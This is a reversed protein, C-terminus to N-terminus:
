PSERQDTAWTNTLVQFHNPGVRTSIGPKLAGIPGAKRFSLELDLKRDACVIPYRLATATEKAGSSLLRTRTRDQKGKIRLVIPTGDTGIRLHVVVDGTVNAMNALQPYTLTLDPTSCDEACLPGITACVAVIV